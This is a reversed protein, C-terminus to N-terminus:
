NCKHAALRLDSLFLYSAVQKGEHFTRLVTNYVGGVIFMNVTIRGAQWCIVALSLPTTLVHM